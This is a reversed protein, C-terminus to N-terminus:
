KGSQRVNFASGDGTLGDRRLMNELVDIDSSIDMAESEYLKDLQKRFGDVLTELIREIEAKTSQINDGAAGSKEFEAYAGLLKLTTPLYYSMFSKIQPEKEPKEQVARFIRSTLDEMEDIRRSVGEDPIDDNLKRIEKLIAKYRDENDQEPQTVPEQEAKPAAGPKLVLLGDGQDIYASGPLLKKELMAELDRKCKRPSVGAKSALEDIKVYDRGGCVAEYVKFRKERKKLFGRYILCGAGSALVSFPPILAPLTDYLFSPIPGSLISLAYGGGLACLVIGLVLLVKNLATYPGADPAKQATRAAIGASKQASAKKKADSEAARSVMNSGEKGGAPRNRAQTQNKLDQTQRKLEQAQAQAQAIPDLVVTKDVYNIYARPGFRGEAVMKQLDRMATDFSVGVASALYAISEVSRGETMIRYKDMRVAQRSDSSINKGTTRGGFLGSKWLAIGIFALPLLPWAWPINILIIFGLFILWGNPGSSNNKNNKAM